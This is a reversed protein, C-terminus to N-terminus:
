VKPGLYISLMTIGKILPVVTYLVIVLRTLYHWIRRSSNRSCRWAVVASGFYIVAVASFALPTVILDVAKAPEIVQFHKLLMVPGGIALAAVYPLVIYLGWFAKWLELTGGLASDLFTTNAPNPRVHTEAARLQRYMFASAIGFMASWTAVFGLGWVAFLSSAEKQSAAGDVLLVCVEKLTNMDQLKGIDDSLGPLSPLATLSVIRVVVLSVLASVFFWASLAFLIQSIRKPSTM